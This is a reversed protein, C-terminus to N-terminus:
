VWTRDRPRHGVAFHLAVAGSTFHFCHGAQTVRSPVFKVSHSGLVRRNKKVAADHQRKALDRRVLFSAKHIQAETADLPLQWDRLMETPAAPPTPQKPTM